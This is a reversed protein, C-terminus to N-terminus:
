EFPNVGSSTLSFIKNTDIRGDENLLGDKELKATDRATIYNKYGEPDLTKQAFSGDKLKDKPDEEKKEEKKEKKKDINNKIAKGINILGQTFEKGGSNISAYNSKGSLSYDSPNASITPVSIFNTPMSSKYSFPSRNNFGINFSNKNGLFNTKYKGLTDM